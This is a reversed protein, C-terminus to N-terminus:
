NLLRRILVLGVIGGGILFLGAPEPGPVAISALAGQVSSGGMQGAPAAYVLSAIPLLMGLTLFRRM